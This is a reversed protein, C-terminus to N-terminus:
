AKIIGNPVVGACLLLRFDARATPEADDTEHSSLRQSLLINDAQSMNFASELQKVLVMIDPCLAVSRAIASKIRIALGLQDLRGRRLIGIEQLHCIAM